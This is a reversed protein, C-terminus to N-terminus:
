PKVKKVYGYEDYIYIEEVKHTVSIYRIVNKLIINGGCDHTPKKDYHTNGCELCRPISKHKKFFSNIINKQINNLYNNIIRPVWGSNFTNIRKYPKAMFWLTYLKCNSCFLRSLDSEYCGKKPIIKTFFYSKLLQNYECKDCKQNLISM